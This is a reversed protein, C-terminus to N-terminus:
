QDDGEYLCAVGAAGVSMAAQGSANVFVPVQDGNTPEAITDSSWFVTAGGLAGSALSLGHLIAAQLEGSSGLRFEGACPAGTLVVDQTVTAGFLWRDETVPDVWENPSPPRGPEGQPGVPGEAGDKGRVNVEQWSDDECAFFQETTKIWALKGSLEHTCPPLESTDDVALAYVGGDKRYEVVVEKPADPQYIVGSDTPATTPATGAANPDTGCAALFFLLAFHLTWM